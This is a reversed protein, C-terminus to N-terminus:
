SLRTVEFGPGDADTEPVDEYYPGIRRGSSGEPPEVKIVDAGMNALLRGCFEGRHDGVEIIRIGQLPSSIANADLPEM